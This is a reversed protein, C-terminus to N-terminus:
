YITEELDSIIDDLSDSCDILTEIIEETEDNQFQEPTNDFAYQEEDCVSDLQDKLVNLGDMIEKIKKRRERNM